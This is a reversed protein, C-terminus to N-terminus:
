LGALKEIAVAHDRLTKDFAAKVMDARAHAQLFEAVAQKVVDNGSTNTVFAYTRLAEAMETPLRVTLSTTDKSM